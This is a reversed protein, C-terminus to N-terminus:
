VCLLKCHFETAIFDRNLFCYSNHGPRDSVQAVIKLLFYAWLAQKLLQAMQSFGPMGVCSLTLWAKITFRSLIIPILHRACLVHLRDDRVATFPPASFVVTGRVGICCALIHQSLPSLHHGLVLSISLGVVLVSERLAQM